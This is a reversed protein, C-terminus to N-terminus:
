ALLRPAFPSRFFPSLNNTQNTFVSIMITFVQVYVVILLDPSAPWSSTMEPRTKFEKKISM